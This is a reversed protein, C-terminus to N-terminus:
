SKAIQTTIKKFKGESQTLFLIFNTLTVPNHLTDFFLVKLILGNLWFEEFFEEDKIKEEIKIDVETEEETLIWTAFSCYFYM